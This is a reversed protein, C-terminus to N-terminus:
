MQLYVRLQTDEDVMVKPEPSLAVHFGDRMKRGTVSKFVVRVPYLMLDSVMDEPLYFLYSHTGGMPISTLKTEPGDSVYYDGLGKFEVDLAASDGINEMLILGVRKRSLMDSVANRTELLYSTNSHYFNRTEMINKVAKGIKVPDSVPRLVPLHKSRDRISLFVLILALALFLMIGIITIELMLTENYVLNDYPM